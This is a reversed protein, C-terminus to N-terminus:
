PLGPVQEGPIEWAPDPTSQPVAAPRGPNLARHVAQAVLEITKVGYAMSPNDHSLVVILYDHEDGDFGGISHVRWGHTSRPLWGNKVHATVGHPAGAPVGWRQSAVVANMLTLAYRRSRDTLVANTETFRTLLTLQDAATIQTLGWHGGPGLATHTMGALRLFRKLRARGLRKWLTSAADNDSRTIMKGALSIESATLLRDQEIAHRLLAGLITVKVISASDYHRGPSVRCRIRRRRDYVTVSTTSWRGRLATRIGTGLRQATAADAASSCVRAAAAAAGPPAVIGTPLSGAVVAASVM